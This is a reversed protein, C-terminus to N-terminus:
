SERKKIEGVRSSKIDFHKAYEKKTEGSLKTYFDLVKAELFLDRM